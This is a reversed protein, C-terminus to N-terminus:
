FSYEMKLLIYRPMLRYETISIGFDSIGYNKFTRTNTLNKGSLTFSLKNEKIKYRAELDIFYYDNSNKELNGFFYYENQIQFDLKKSVLFFLDIFSTNDTYSNTITTKIQYQNWKSGIHYNFFVRSISHLEFGYNLNISRIQRLESRNIVNKYVTNVGGFTFKLNSSISKFYRDISSSLVIFERDKIIIKESQSFNQSLLIDNSFFDYNKSYLLYMNAFFTDAWNEHSYNLLLSSANLQNITGTGKEFTRFNTHIYRSYVDLITANTTNFSYLTQVKNNKNIEWDLGLKPNVFFPNQMEINNSNDLKNFLQHFDLQTLLGVTKIKFRYKSNLYLDNTSYSTKNQHETPESILNEDSRIQFHTNLKDKRYQNGLKIELLDGNKKRDLLHGEFGMFQMQNESFQAINNASQSFLGGYLFQNSAYNQPTKEDIYRASILLVKTEKLKNTFVAKQDILQNKSKLTQNLLDGNFTLYSTSNENTKNFKSTIELTKNKSIDYTLDIKAFGTVKAKYLESDETNEFSTAGVNVSQFSNKLFDNQDFNMFGLTKIKVKPSITFVSNLSFMKANNFNVRETKLNPNSTNLQLISNASQNNGMSAPENSQNPRILHNIDGTADVGINNLNTLFYYKNKKGFNMANSRIERTNINGKGYGLEVNGFWQRKADDKLKLNLAVNDSNEIGKLHKNNSYHQYLEIKEVPNVPMNKTLIKYGKEFFDEGDVMVKEVEQNGIRITGEKSVSIGPIKKLLDEIVKENGQAFSKVNYVITDNKVTIPRIETIIVENLEISEYTLIANQTKKVGKELSIPIEKQKYSLATFNIEFDGSLDVTMEYKGNNDTHTFYKIVTSNPIQVSVTAYSIPNNATDKVVGSINTQAYLFNGLLKIILCLLLSIKFRIKLKRHSKQNGM